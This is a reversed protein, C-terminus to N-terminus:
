AAARLTTRSRVRVPTSLSRRRAPLPPVAVPRAGLELAVAIREINGSLIFRLLTCGGLLVVAFFTTSLLHLM